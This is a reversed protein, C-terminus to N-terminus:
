TIRDKGGKGGRVHITGASFDVDKIRLALMEALRMGTGYLLRAMLLPQGELHEFLRQVEDKALVVPLRKRAKARPFDPLEGVPIGLVKEYLFVLACLAANQTAPAVHLDVALHALFPSIASPGLDRPHRKDH